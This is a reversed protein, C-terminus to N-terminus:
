GRDRLLRAKQRQWDRKQIDERKDIKKKGTVLGLQIKAFGRDNFYISLPILTKGKQQVAGIFYDIEKRKILLKRPRTPIHNFRNAAAYEPIHCNYLFFEGDKEDAYADALSARGGRLSKVESGVLAVGASFTEEIFYDYRARRNQTVIRNDDTKKKSM